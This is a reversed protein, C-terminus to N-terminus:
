IESIISYLNYLMCFVAFVPPRGRSLHGRRLIEHRSDRGGARTRALAAARRGPRPRSGAARPPGSLLSRAGQGQGGDWQWAHAPPTVIATGIM